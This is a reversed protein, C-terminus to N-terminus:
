AYQAGFTHANTLATSRTRTLHLLDYRAGARAARECKSIASKSERPQGMEGEATVEAERPRMPVVSNPTRGATVGVTVKERVRAM